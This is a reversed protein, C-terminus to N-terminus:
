TITGFIIAGDRATPQSTLVAPIIREGAKGGRSLNDDGSPRDERGSSTGHGPEM